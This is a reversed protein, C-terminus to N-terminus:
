RAEARATIWAEIDSERWAVRGPSIRIPQPFSGDRVRRWLTTDSWTMRALVTPKKVLRTPAPAIEVDQM